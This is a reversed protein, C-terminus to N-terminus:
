SYTNTDMMEYTKNDKNENKSYFPIFSIGKGSLLKMFDNISNNYIM